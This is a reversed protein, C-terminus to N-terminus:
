FRDQPAFRNEPGLCKSRFVDKGLIYIFRRVIGRLRGKNLTNVVRTFKAYEFGDPNRPKSIRRVYPNPNM